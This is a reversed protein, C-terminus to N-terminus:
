HLIIRKHKKPGKERKITACQLPLYRHDKVGDAYTYSPATYTHQAITQALNDLNVKGHTEVELIPTLLPGKPTNTYYCHLQFFDSVYKPFLRLVRAIEDARLIGGPIKVFDMETRGLVTFSWEGHSCKEQVVRIFDGVRFRLMPFAAGEGCYATVVLEGEVGVKPEILTGTEADLIELFHSNKPHYVALPESGDVPRCPMGIFPTDEVEIAGYAVLFVANPFTERAYEYLARSCVEGVIEIFRINKNIDERKMSEGIASLQYSFVSISDVGAIKALFISTEPHTPDFTLAIPCLSNRRAFKEHLYPALPSLYVLTPKKFDHFALRYELDQVGSRPSFFPKRGSTGSSVGLHDVESLAIFSRKNLPVDAIADKTVFPLARWEEMSHIIHSSMDGSLGYLNRYFSSRASPDTVFAVLSYLKEPTLM